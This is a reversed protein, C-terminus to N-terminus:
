KWKSFIESYLLIMIFNQASKNSYILIVQLDDVHVCESVRGVKLILSKSENILWKKTRTCKWGERPNMSFPRATLRFLHVYKNVQNSVKLSSCYICILRYLYQMGNLIMVFLEVKSTPQTRFGSRIYGVYFLQGLM